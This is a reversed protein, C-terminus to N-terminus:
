DRERSDPLSKEYFTISDGLADSLCTLDCPTQIDVDLTFKGIRKILWDGTENREIRLLDHVNFDARHTVPFSDSMLRLDSGCVSAILEPVITETSVYVRKGLPFNPACSDSIRASDSFNAVQSSFNLNGLFTSIVLSFSLTVIIIGQSFTSKNKMYKDFIYRSFIELFLALFVWSVVANFALIRVWIYDNFFNNPNSSLYNGTRTFMYYGSLLWLPVMLLGAVTLLYKQKKYYKIFILLIALIILAIQLYVNSVSTVALEYGQGRLLYGTENPGSNPWFVELFINNNNSDRVDKVEGLGKMSLGVSNLPSLVGLHTAGGGGSQTLARVATDVIPVQFASYFAIAGIGITPIIRLILFNTKSKRFKFRSINQSSWFGSFCIVSVIIVQFVIQQAYVFFQGVFTIGLLFIIAPTSRKRSILIFSFLMALLCIAYSLLQNGFGEIVYISFWRSNLAWLLILSPILFTFLRTSSNSTSTLNASWFRYLYLFNVWVLSIISAASFVTLIMWLSLYNSIENRPELTLFKGILFSFGNHLYYGNAIGYKLTSDPIEWPSRLYKFEDPNDWNADWKFPVGLLPEYENLVKQFNGYRLVSGSVSSYGYPDPNVYVSQQFGFPAAVSIGIALFSFLAFFSSKGPISLLLMERFTKVRIRTTRFTLAFTALFLMLSTIWFSFGFFASACIPILLLLFSTFLSSIEVKSDGLIISIPVSFTFVILMALLIEIFM